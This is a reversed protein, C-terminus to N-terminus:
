PLRVMATESSALTGEAALTRRKGALALPLTDGVTGSIRRGPNRWRLSVYKPTSGKGYTGGLTNGVEAPVVLACADIRNSTKAQAAFAPMAMLAASDCAALTGPRTRRM